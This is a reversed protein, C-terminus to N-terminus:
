FVRVDASHNACASTGTNRRSNTVMKMRAMGKIRVSGRLACCFGKLWSWILLITSAPNPSSEPDFSISCRPISKVGDSSRIWVRLDAPALSANRLARRAVLGGSGALALFGILWTCTKASSTPWTGLLRTVM